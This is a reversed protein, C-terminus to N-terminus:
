FTAIKSAETGLAGRPLDAHIMAVDGIRLIDGELVIRRGIWDRFRPMAASGAADALLFYSHGAVPATAVFIAPIEGDICLTACARHAIGSGPRMAGAACKGDCIEGAVRWRGLSEPVPVPPGAQLPAPVPVASLIMMDITGRRIVVGRATVLMGSLASVENGPGAKGDGSLLIAHSSKGFRDPSILLLPSPGGLMMGMLEIEGGFEPGLAEGRVLLRGTPDDANEALIVGFVAAALLAGGAIIVLRQLVNREYRARWGIFFEAGPTM